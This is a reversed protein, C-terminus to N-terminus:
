NRNRRQYQKGIFVDIDNSGRESNLKDELEFEPYAARFNDIPEWTADEQPCGAWQVLLERRGRNLRTNIIAQPTPLAKGDYVLPLDGVADPQPGKYEKLFSVHFVDHIRSGTPLELQYAVSGIKNLVKFPGFYKPLLKHHKQKTITLQRYQQLRLWVWDGVKFNLERHGLDYTAKMRQQAQLLRDRANHLLADRDQLAKDM